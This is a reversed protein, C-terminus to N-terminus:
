PDAPSLPKKEIEEKKYEKKLWVTCLLHMDKFISVHTTSIVGSYEHSSTKRQRRQMYWLIFLSASGTDGEDERGGTHRRFTVLCLSPTSFIAKKEKENEKGQM